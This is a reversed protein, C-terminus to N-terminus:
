YTQFNLMKLHSYATAPGGCIISLQSWDCDIEEMKILLNLKNKPISFAMIIDLSKEYTKRVGRKIVIQVIKGYTCSKTTSDM